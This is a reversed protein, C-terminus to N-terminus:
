AASYVLSAMALSMGNSTVSRPTSARMDLHHGPALRFHSQQELSNVTATSPRIPLPASLGPSPAKPESTSPPRNSALTSLDLPELPWDAFATEEAVPSVPAPDDVPM